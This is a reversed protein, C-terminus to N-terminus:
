ANRPSHMAYSTRRITGQTVELGYKLTVINNLLLYSSFPVFYLVVTLLVDITLQIHDISRTM